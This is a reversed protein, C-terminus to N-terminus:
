RSTDINIYVYVCMHIIKKDSYENFGEVKIRIVGKQCLFLKIKM